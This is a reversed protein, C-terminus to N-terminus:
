YSMAAANLLGVGIAVAAALIAPALENNDIRTSLDRIILRVAFYALVQVVLAVAGWVACDILSVSHSVAAHLPLCFGLIAAGFAVAAAVNNQRILAFEDHATIRVYILVFLLLLGCSVALYALFAPLGSLFQIPTM